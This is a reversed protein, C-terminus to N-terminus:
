RGGFLINQHIFNNSKKNTEVNDKNVSFILGCAYNLNENILLHTDFLFNQPKLGHLYLYELWTMFQLCLYDFLNKNKIESCLIDEIENKLEECFKSHDMILPTDIDLKQDSKKRKNNPPQLNETSM